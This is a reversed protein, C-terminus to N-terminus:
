HTRVSVNKKRKFSLSQSIVYFLRESLLLLIKENPAGSVVSYSENSHNCNLIECVSKFTLVVKYVVPFYQETAKM